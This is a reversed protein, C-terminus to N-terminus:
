THAVVRPSNTTMSRLWPQPPQSSQHTTSSRLARCVTCLVPTPIYYAACVITDPSPAAAQLWGVDMDQKCVHTGTQRYALCAGWTKSVVPAGSTKHKVMKHKHCAVSCSTSGHINYCLARFMFACRIESIRSAAGDCVCGRVQGVTM